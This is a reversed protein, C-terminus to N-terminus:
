KKLAFDPKYHSETLNQTFNYATKYSQQWFLVTGYVRFYSYFHFVVQSSFNLFILQEAWIICCKCSFFKHLLNLLIM